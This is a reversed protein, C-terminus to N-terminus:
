EADSHRMIFDVPNVVQVGAIPKSLIKRDTTLFYEARMCIACAIHTADKPRLGLKMIEGATNSVEDSPSCDVASLSKWEFIQRRVEEFPNAGNEYDLMFSWVLELEGQRILRQVHLKAETELRVILSDQNDFPRNFCCNDLYVKM